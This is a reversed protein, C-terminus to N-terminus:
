DKNFLRTYCTKDLLRLLCRKVISIPKHIISVPTNYGSCKGTQRASLVINHKNNKYKNMMKIQYDFMTFKIRGRVPHKIYVYNMAFYVPDVACRKMELIMEQTYEDVVNSSKLNPNKRRSM